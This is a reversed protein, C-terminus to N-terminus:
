KCRYTIRGRSLDCPTLEVRVRGGPLSEIHYMQMKGSVHAFAEHENDIRVRFM